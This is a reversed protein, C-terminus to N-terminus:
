INELVHIKDCKCTLFTLFIFHNDHTSLFIFRDIQIQARSEMLRQLEETFFKKKLSIFLEDSKFSINHNTLYKYSIKGMKGMKRCKKWLLKDTKM